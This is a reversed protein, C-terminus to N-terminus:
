KKCKAESYEPLYLERIDVEKLILFNYKREIVKNLPVGYHEALLRRIESRKVEIAQEM